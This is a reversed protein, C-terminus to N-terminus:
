RMVLPPNLIYLVLTRLALVYLFVHYLVCLHFIFVHLCTLKIFVEGVGGRYADGVERISTKRRLRVASSPQEFLIPDPLIGQSHYRSPHSAKAYRVLDKTFEAPPVQAWGNEDVPPLIEFVALIRAISIFV